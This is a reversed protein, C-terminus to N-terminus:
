VLKIDIPTKFYLQEGEQLGDKFYYSYLLSYNGTKKYEFNVETQVVSIAGNLVTSKQRNNAIKNKDIELM